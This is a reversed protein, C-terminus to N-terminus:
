SSICIKISSGLRSGALPSKCVGYGIAQAFSNQHLPEALAIGERAAVGGAHDSSGVIQGTANIAYGTSHKGGPLTGLSAKTGSSYLFAITGLVECDVSTGATTTFTGTVQGSANVAYAAGSGLNSWSGDSYTFAYQGTLCPDSSYNGAALGVILGSDNIGLAEPGYNAGENCGFLDCPFPLSAVAGGPGGAKGHASQWRSKYSDLTGFKSVQDACWVGAHSLRVVPRSIRTGM